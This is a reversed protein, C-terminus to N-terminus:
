VLNLRFLFFKFSCIKSIINNAQARSDMDKTHDNTIDILAQYIESMYMKLPKLAEIRSELTTASLPKLNLNKPFDKLILQKPDNEIICDRLKINM